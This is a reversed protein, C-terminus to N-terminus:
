TRDNQSWATAAHHGARRGFLCGRMVSSSGTYTRHYVGMTEGAAYLSPLPRRPSRRHLAPRGSQGAPWLQFDPGGDRDEKPARELVLVKAGAEAASVASSLGAIGCGVVIVDVTLTKANM